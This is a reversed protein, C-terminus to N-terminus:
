FALMRFLRGDEGDDHLERVIESEDFEIRQDQEDRPLDPDILTLIYQIGFDTCTERIIELLNIKKRNDLGELVGDHYVFRYFSQKSYTRLVAIDFCACLLKKYSTGEAESTERGTRKRDLTQTNFSLNGNSNISVSLLPDQIKEVVLDRERENRSIKQQVNSAIDLYSLQQRLDNAEQEFKLLKKQLLRYKELTEQEKLIELAAKREGDLRTLELDISHKRTALRKRLDQLRNARDVTIRQNFDILEEYEKTLSEPFIINIENFLAKVQNIDFSISTELSKEIELLEYDIKYREKNLDAIQHEIRAIADESIESEIEYFSFSDIEKRFRDAKDEIIEIMGRIEDYEESTSDAEKELNKLYEEDKNIKNDIEYKKKIVDHDFGLVIALYPKWDIDKGLSFSSTRFENFFDKQRRLFYRLGKRFTYPAIVKLNLSQNLKKIGEKLSLGAFTWQEDPLNLLDDKRTSSVAINITNRGSVKRKITLFEDDNNKIQLYFIFKSFLDSNKKFPHEKGIKSLLAFDIVSILFTKGLNHSDLERRLPKHIRAFIVNLGDNFSIRPFIDEKNTYLSILKM